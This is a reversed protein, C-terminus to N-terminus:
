KVYVPREELWVRVAYETIMPTRGIRRVPLGETRAWRRATWRSVGLRKAIQKWGQYEVSRVRALERGDADLIKHTM